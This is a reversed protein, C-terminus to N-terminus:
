ASSPMRSIWEHSSNLRTSKRDIEDVALADDIAVGHLPLGSKSPQNARRGFVFARYARGNIRAVRDYHAADWRHWVSVELEGRDDIREELLVAVAPPLERRLGAPVAMELARKPDLEILDKLAARRASALRAGTSALAPTEAVEARRWVTLWDEFERAKAVAAARRRQAEVRNAFDGPVPRPDCAADAAASSPPAAAFGEAEAPRGAMERPNPTFVDPERRVLFVAVAPLLLFILLTLRLSRPRPSM